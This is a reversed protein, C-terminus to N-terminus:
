TVKCKLNGIYPTADKVMLRGKVELTQNKSLSVRCSQPLPQSRMTFNKMNAAFIYNVNGTDMMYIKGSAAASIRSCGNNSVCLFYTSDHVPGTFRMKLKAMEIDAAANQMCLLSLILAIGKVLTKM